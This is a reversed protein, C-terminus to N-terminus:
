QLTLGDVDGGILRYRETIDETLLYLLLAKKGANIRLQDTAADELEIDSDILIFSGTNNVIELLWGTKPQAALSIANNYGDIITQYPAQTAINVDAALNQRVKNSYLGKQPM